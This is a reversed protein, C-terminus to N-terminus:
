LEQAVAVCSGLFCESCKLRTVCGAELLAKAVVWLVRAVVYCFALM